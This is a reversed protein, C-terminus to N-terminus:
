DMKLHATSTLNQIKKLMEQKQKKDLAHVAEAIAAELEDEFYFYATPVDLIKAMRDLTTFDPVHKDREYQNMRASANNPDLGLAEGLKQQTMGKKIRAQKLRQPIPTKFSMSTGFADHIFTESKRLSGM